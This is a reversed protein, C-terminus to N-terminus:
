GNSARWDDAGIILSVPTSYWHHHEGDPMQLKEAFRRLECFPASLELWRDVSIRLASEGNTKCVRLGQLFEAYPEPGGLSNAGFSEKVAASDIFDTFRGHLDHLGAVSDLLMPDGTDAYFIM